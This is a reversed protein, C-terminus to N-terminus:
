MRENVLEVLKIATSCELEHSGRFSALCDWSVKRSLTLTGVFRQEPLPTLHPLEAQFRDFLASKPPATSTFTL